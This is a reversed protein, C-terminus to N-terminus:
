LFHALVKEEKSLYFYYLLSNVTKKSVSGTVRGGHRKILDEAEERELSYFPCCGNKRWHKYSTCCYWSVCFVDLFPAYKM